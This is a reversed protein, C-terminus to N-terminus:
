GEFVRDRANRIHTRMTSRAAEPDRRRIAALIERHEDQVLGLREAPKTLSLSRAVNMGALIQARLSSRAAVFYHNDTAACIALHFEEDAEAGLSGEEICRDLAALAAEMRAMEAPGWREAALAAAEGEITTRFEFTRGLDAISGVPAFRLMARDPRKQVYSGSGQQSSIIGDERLQKLAQRLVPRSVGMEVSLAKEAPLRAGAPYGGDVIRSLVREYVQDALTGERQREGGAARQAPRDDAPVRAPGHSAM